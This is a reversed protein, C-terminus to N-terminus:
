AAGRSLASKNESRLHAPPQLLTAGLNLAFFIVAAMEVMASLPLIKWAPPWLEEYALPETTVRLLCGISLLCLSWFMLRTSWLIRTGCFAPLIRQGIAFVMSAIFGVTIAHRSAGWLGGSRDLPVAVVALICSVLLWAYTVRLFFPFSSHINLL